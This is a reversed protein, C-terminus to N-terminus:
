SEALPPPEISVIEVELRDGCGLLAEILRHRLDDPEEGATPWDADIALVGDRVAALAVRAEERRRGITATAHRVLGVAVATGGAARLWLRLVLREPVTLDEIPDCLLRRNPVRLTRGTPTEIRLYLLGKERLIGAVSGIRVARGRHVPRGYLSVFGAVLNACADWAGAGLALAAIAMVVQLVLGPEGPVIWGIFLLAGVVAAARTAFETPGASEPSLFPEVRVRGARVQDFLRGVLALVVRLLIGCILIVGLVPVWQGIESSAAAFPELLGAAWRRTAPFQRVLV